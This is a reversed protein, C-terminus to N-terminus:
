PQKLVRALLLQDWPVDYSEWPPKAMREEPTMNMRSTAARAEVEGALRRYGEEGAAHQVADWRKAKGQPSSFEDLYEAYKAQALPLDAPDPVGGWFEEIPVPKWAEMKEAALKRYVPSTTQSAWGAAGSSGGPSFGEFNQVAHQLEHILTGKASKPNMPATLFVSNDAPSFGGRARGGTRVSTSPAIANADYAAALKPHELLAGKTGFAPGYDFDGAHTEDIPNEKGGGVNFRAGSDDIEHRWEGDPGRFVGAERWVQERPAGAKEMKLAKALAARPFTASKQGAFIGAMMPGFKAAKGIPPTPSFLEGVQEAAGGEGGLFRERVFKGAGPQQGLAMGAIDAMDFPFAATGRATGKLVKAMLAQAQRAAAPNYDEDYVAQTQERM